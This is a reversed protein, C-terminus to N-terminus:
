AAPDLSAPAVGFVDPRLDHRTVQGATAQEIKKALDVGAKRGKWGTAIQWLYGADSGVATALQRRRDMDEIYTALDM